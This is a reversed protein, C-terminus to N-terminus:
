RHSGDESPDASEEAEESKAVKKETSKAAGKTKKKETVAHEDSKSENTGGTLSRKRTPIM